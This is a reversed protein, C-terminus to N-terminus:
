AMCIRARFFVQVWFGLDWVWVGRETKNGFGGDGTELQSEAPQFLVGGNRPPPDGCKGSNMNRKKSPGRKSTLSTIPAM